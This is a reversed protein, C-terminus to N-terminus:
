RREDDDDRLLSPIVRIAPAGNEGADEVNEVDPQDRYLVGEADTYELARREREERTGAIDDTWSTRRTQM